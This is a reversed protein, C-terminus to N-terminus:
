SSISHFTFPIATARLLFFAIMTFTIFTLFKRSGKNTKLDFHNSSAFLSDVLVGVGGRLIGNQDTYGDYTKDAFDVDTNNESYGQPCDYHIVGGAFGCV